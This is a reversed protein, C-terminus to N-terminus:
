GETSICVSRTFRETPAMPVRVAQPVCSEARALSIDDRALGLSACLSEVTWLMQRM